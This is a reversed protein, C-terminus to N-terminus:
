GIQLNWILVICWWLFFMFLYKLTVCTYHVYLRAWRSVKAIDSDKSSIKVLLEKMHTSDHYPMLNKVVDVPLEVHVPSDDKIAVFKTLDEYGIHTFLCCVKCAWKFLIIGCKWSFWNAAKLNIIGWLWIDRYKYSAM